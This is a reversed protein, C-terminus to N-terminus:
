GYDLEDVRKGLNLGLLITFLRAHSVKTGFIKDNM